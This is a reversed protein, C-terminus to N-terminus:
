NIILLGCCTEFVSGNRVDVVDGCEIKSFNAPPARTLIRLSSKSFLKVGAPFFRSFKPKIFPVHCVCKHEIIFKAGMTIIDFHGAEHDLPWLKQSSIMLDRTRNGRRGYPNKRSPSSERPSWPRTLKSYSLNLGWGPVEYVYVQIVMCRLPVVYNRRM